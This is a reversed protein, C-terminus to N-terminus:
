PCLMGTCLNSGLNIGGSVDNPLNDVTTNNVFVNSRYGHATPGFRGLLGGGGRNEAIVNNIVLGAFRGIIGVSNASVLCDEIIYVSPSDIRIGTFGNGVVRLNQLHINGTQSPGLFYIGNRRFGAITGNTIEINRSTSQIPMVVIGSVFASGSQRVTFGNLDLKVDGSSIEIATEEADINNILIYSGPETIMTPASIEIRGEDAGALDSLLLTVLLPVGIRNSRRM